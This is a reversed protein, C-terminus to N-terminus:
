ALKSRLEGLLRITEYKQGHLTILAKPLDLNMMKPGAKKRLTLTFFGSMVHDGHTM